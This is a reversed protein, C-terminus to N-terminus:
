SSKLGISELENSNMGLRHSAISFAHQPIVERIEQELGEFLEKGKLKDLKNGNTMLNLLEIQKKMLIAQTLKHNSM